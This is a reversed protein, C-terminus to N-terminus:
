NGSPALTLQYDSLTGRLADNRAAVENMFASYDTLKHGPGITVTLVHGAAVDGVIIVHTENGSIPRTYVLYQSSAPQIQGVDPGRLTLALAGDDANPTTLSVVLSTLPASQPPSESSTTADNTCAIGMALALIAALKGQHRV